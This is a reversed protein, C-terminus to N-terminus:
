GGAALGHSRYSLAALAVASEETAAALDEALWCAAAGLAVPNGHYEEALAALADRDHALALRIM